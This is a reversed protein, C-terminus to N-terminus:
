IRLKLLCVCLIVFFWFDSLASFAFSTPFFNYFMAVLLNQTLNMILLGWALAPIELYNRWKWWHVKKVRTGTGGTVSSWIEADTPYCVPSRLHSILGRRM